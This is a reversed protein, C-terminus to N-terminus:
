RPHPRKGAQVQNCQIALREADADWGHLLHISQSVKWFSRLNYEMGYLLLHVCLVLKGTADLLILRFCLLWAKSHGSSSLRCKVRCTLRQNLLRCQLPRQWTFSSLQCKVRSTLRRRLLRCQLPRQWTFSLQYKVRRTLRRSLLRTQFLGALFRASVITRPSRRVGDREPEMGNVHLPLPNGTGGKPEAKLLRVSQSSSFRVNYEIRRTCGFGDLTISDKNRVNECM